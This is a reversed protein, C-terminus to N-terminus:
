ANTAATAPIFLRTFSILALDCFLFPPSFLCITLKHGLFIQEGTELLGLLSGQLHNTMKLM